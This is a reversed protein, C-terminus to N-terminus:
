LERMKLHVRIGGAPVKTGTGVESGPLKPWMDTGDPPMVDWLSITAAVIAAIHKEAYTRGRCMGAGLGWPRMRGLRATNKGTAADVELFRDPVFKEPRPYVSADSQVLSHMVTCWTGAQLMHPRRGPGMDIEIPRAVFRLSSPESFLRFTEYMASRLLACEHHVANHALRTLEPKGTAPNRHVDVYPAVEARLAELLGPTSYIYVLLWATVRQTNSNQGVILSTEIIGRHAYTFRYKEFVESREIAVLPVDGVTERVAAKPCDALKKYLAQINESLRARAALGAQYAKFPAWQPIGVILPLVQSEYKWMDSVCEPYSKLFDQGFLESIAMHAGFDRVLNLLDAEVIGPKGKLPEDARILKVDANREWPSKTNTFSVLRSVRDPVNAEEVAAVCNTENMYARELTALLDKYGETVSHYLEETHDSAGVQVFLSWQVTKSELNHNPFGQLLIKEGIVPDYIAQHGRLFGFLPGGYWRFIKSTACM